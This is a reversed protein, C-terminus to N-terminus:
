GAHVVVFSKPVPVFHEFCELSNTESRQSSLLGAQEMVVGQKNSYIQKRAREKFERCFWHFLAPRSLLSNRIPKLICWHSSYGPVVIILNGTCNNAIAAASNENELSGLSLRSM